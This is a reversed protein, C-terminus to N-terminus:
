VYVLVVQLTRQMLINVLRKHDQDGCISVQYIKDNSQEAPMCDNQTLSEQIKDHFKYFVHTMYVHSM